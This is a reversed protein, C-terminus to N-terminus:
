VPQAMQSPRTALHPTPRPPSLASVRAIEDMSQGSLALVSPGTSVHIADDIQAAGNLAPALPVIASLGRGLGKKATM